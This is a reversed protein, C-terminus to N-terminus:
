LVDRRTVEWGGLLAVIIGGVVNVILEKLLIPEGKNFTNALLGPMAWPYFSGWDSSIVIMGSVTMLIGVAMAVVFSQWRIAVWTHLSIILWSALYVMVGYKLFLDWPIAADFGVDPMLMRLVLGALVSFGVLGAMSLAILAMGMLQKAAYVTWRPQPLAYLHKWQNSRHELGGLLATELAVFLPVMLFGFFVFMEQGFRVWANEIQRLYYEARQYVVLFQLGVMGLPAIIALWLALTRKMKLTEAKLARVLATM